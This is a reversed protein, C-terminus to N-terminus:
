ASLPLVASVSKGGPRTSVEVDESLERVLQWGFGGPKGPDSRRLRPVAASADEVTVTVTGPGAVLRFRTVGGAHRVANTVLESAVLLVADVDPGSAPGVVSLFGRTVVRAQDATRVGAEQLPERGEDEEESSDIM